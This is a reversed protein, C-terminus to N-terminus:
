EQDGKTDNEVTPPFGVRDAQETLMRSLADGMTEDEM